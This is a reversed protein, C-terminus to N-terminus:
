LRWSKLSLIRTLLDLTTDNLNPVCNLLLRQSDSNKMPLPYERYEAILVYRGDKFRISLDNQDSFFSLSMTSIIEKHSSDPSKTVQTSGDLM